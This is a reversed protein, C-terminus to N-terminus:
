AKEGATMYAYVSRGIKALTDLASFPEIDKSLVTISVSRKGAFLIGADHQRGTDWGPKHAMEWPTLSGIVPSDSEPLYAPLGNRVQQKKMIEIMQQCAHYSIYSGTALTKLLTNVDAATIENLGERKVPYVCCKNFFHSEKMGTERMTQNIADAGVLDVLMNTATNDSQVIMLTILDYIPLVIGPTMHQLFGSGGVMDERRLTMTDSLNFRKEEAAAFVAAMIPVKIVSEALFLEVENHALSKGTDLDEVVVGWTGGAKATLDIITEKLQDM